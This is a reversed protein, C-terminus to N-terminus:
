LDKLHNFAVVMFYIWVCLFVTLLLYAMFLLTCSIKKILCSQPLFFCSMPTGIAACVLASCMLLLLYAGAMDSGRSRCAVGLFLLANAVFLVLSTLGISLLVVKKITEDTKNNKVAQAVASNDVLGFLIIGALGVGGSSLGFISILYTAYKPPFMGFCRPIEPVTDM